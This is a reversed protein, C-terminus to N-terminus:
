KLTLQGTPASTLDILAAQQRGWTQPTHKNLAASMMFSTAVVGVDINDSMKDLTQTLPAATVISRNVSRM